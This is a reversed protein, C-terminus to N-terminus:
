HKMRAANVVIEAAKESAGANGLRDRLEDYDELIQRQRKGDHLLRELETVINKETLDSQILEKLVEKDMVLNVLSIFKVKIMWKALLYSFGTAKYCVVEPVTFLATELTVTGSTVIAASSNQLLEYTQNEILFVDTNGIIKKYLSKDLSSVGGIVFQYDPFHPVVKLMVPLIRKVEQTRSGPLLAIIERKEGLSNRRLFISRNPTGSKSLEDLLPNGVYTVDVGYEKYFAEEFPFIVIMKDVSKKIKKVRRRKWAWVQPSIYYLVKFGKEHAFDAIRLNFGPYDVLILADPQYEVIDKKCQAINDLVKRLNVAVEVFGMFAMTRYHKLLDVGQAKMLDGGCGRFEAKKDKKKIEAVLNSAHLDGSAEGAIIYYRM